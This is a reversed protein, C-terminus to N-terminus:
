HNFSHRAHEILSPADMVQGAWQFDSDGGHWRYDGAQVGNAIASNALNVALSLRAIEDSVIPAAAPIIVTETVIQPEATGGNELKWKELAREYRRMASNWIVRRSNYSTCAARYAALDQINADKGPATPAVPPEPAIPMTSV